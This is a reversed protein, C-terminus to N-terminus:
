ALFLFLLCELQVVLPLIIMALMHCSRKHLYYELNGVFRNFIIFFNLLTAIYLTLVGLDTTKFVSLLYATCLFNLFCGCICSSGFLVFYESIFCTTVSFVVFYKHFFNFFVSIFSSMRLKFILSRCNNFNAM